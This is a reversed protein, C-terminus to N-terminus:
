RKNLYTLAWFIGDEGWHSIFLCRIVAVDFFTALSNESKSPIRPVVCPSSLKDVIPSAMEKVHPGGIVNSSATSTTNTIGGPATLPSGSFSSQSALGALSSTPGGGTGSPVISPVNPAPEIPSSASDRLHLFTSFISGNSVFSFLARLVQDWGLANLQKTDFIPFPHCPVRKCFRGKLAPM